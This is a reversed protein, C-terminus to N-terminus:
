LISGRQTAIVEMSVVYSWGGGTDICRVRYTHRPEGSPDSGASCFTAEEVCPEATHHRDM